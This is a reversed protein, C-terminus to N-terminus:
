PLTNNRLRRSYTNEKPCRNIITEDTAPYWGPDDVPPVMTWYVLKNLEMYTYVNDYFSDQYGHERIFKTLKLFLAKNVHKKVIYEHPWTDTYTKANTWKVSNIFSMLDDPIVLNLHHM